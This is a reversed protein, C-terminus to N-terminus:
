FQLYMFPNPEGRNLIIMFLCFAYGLDRLWDPAQFPAHERMLYDIHLIVVPAAYFLMHAIKPVSDEKPINLYLCLLFGAADELRSFKFFILGFSYLLYIWAIRLPSWWSILRPPRGPKRNQFLRELVLLLGNYLGWLAFCWTAGHWIGVLFMIILLNLYARFRGSTSGGMPIFVYDRFWTTLSIHWRQWFEAVSQSIFPFNFNQILNYGFLRAVGLAIHTYGAFDAFLQIGFGLLLMGLTLGSSVYYNPFDLRVTIERLNDAVVMKLFYGMILHRGVIGWPIDSFYKPEIQPFFDRAREIPGAVLQPFFGIFFASRLLHSGFSVPYGFVPRLEPKQRFTDILLSIGQFSYYSIGLPLPLNLLLDGAFDSSQLGVNRAIVAGYKFAALIALSLVVGGAAWWRKRRIDETRLIQYSAVANTLISTLLLLVLLPQHYGYFVLSAAILIPVQWRILVPWYFLLLTAAVLIVFELSTFLM